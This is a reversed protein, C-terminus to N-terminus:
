QHVYAEVAQSYWYLARVVAKETETSTSQDLTLKVYSYAGYRVAATQNDKNNTIELEFMNDLQQANIDSVDIRYTTTTGEQQPVYERDYFYFTYDNASYGEDFTMTFRITTKSNLIMSAGTITIGDIEKPTVSTPNYPTYSMLVSSDLTPVSKDEDNLISNALKVTNYNFNTQAAAGYNLLAKGAAVAKTYTGPNSNEATILASIYDQVSYTYEKTLPANEKMFMQAKIEKAMGLANVRCTFVYRGKSDKTASAVPVTVTTYADSTGNGSVDKPVLFQMYADDPVNALTIYYNIGIEDGLSISRSNPTAKIEDGRIEEGCVTCKEGQTYGIYGSEVSPLTVEGYPTSTHDDALDLRLAKTATLAHTQNWSIGGGGWNYGVSCDTKNNTFFYGVSLYVIDTPPVTTGLPLKIESVYSTETFVTKSEAGSVITSGYPQMEDVSDQASNRYFRVKTRQDCSDVTCSGEHPVHFSIEINREAVLKNYTGTLLLYLYEGDSIAKLDSNTLQNDKSSTVTAPGFSAANKWVGEDAIGDIKLSTPACAAPYTKHGSGIVLGCNACRNVTYQTAIDLTHEVIPEALTVQAYTAPTKIANLGIVRQDNFFAYEMTTNYNVNAIGYVETFGVELGLTDIVGDVSAYEGSLNLAIEITYTQTEANYGVKDTSFANNNGKWAGNIYMQNGGALPYHLEVHNSCSGNTCNGDCAGHIGIGLKTDGTNVTRSDGEGYLTAATAAKYECLIYLNGCYTMVKVTPKYSSGTATESRDAIRYLPIVTANAWESGTNSGDVTPKASAANVTISPMLSVPAYGSMDAQAAQNQQTKTITQSWSYANRVTGGHGSAFDAYLVELGFTGKLGGNGVADKDIAIEYVYCATGDVTVPATIATAYNTQYEIYDMSSSGECWGNDSGDTTQYAGWYSGYTFFRIEKHNKCPGDTKKLDCELCPGNAGHFGIYFGENEANTQTDCGNAEAIGLIYIKTDDHLMTFKPKMTGNTSTQHELTQWVLNDQWVADINGDIIPSVTAYNVSLATAPTLTLSGYTSYNTAMAGWEGQGIAGSWSYNGYWTSNNYDGYGVEWSITGHLNPVASKSIKLEHTYTTGDTTVKHFAFSPNNDYWVNGRVLEQLANGNSLARLGKCKSCSAGKNGVGECADLTHEGVGYFNIHFGENGSATETDNDTYQGLFYIYDADHLVRFKPKEPANADTSATGTCINLYQWEGDGWEGVDATGDITPPTETFTATCSANGAASAVITGISSLTSLTLVLALLFAIKRM